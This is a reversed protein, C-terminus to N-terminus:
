KSAGTRSKVMEAKERMGRWRAYRDAKAPDPDEEGKLWFRYWDVTGQQSLLREKPKTPVHDGDPFYIYEVPREHRRLLAYTDWWGPLTRGYMEIKLPTKVRDLHLLPNRETWLRRGDEGWLPAGVLRELNLMGPYGANFYMAYHLVSINDADSVSAAALDLDSFTIAHQVYYGTNSWGHMGVRAPDVLGMEDLKEIASRYVQMQGVLGEWTGKSTVDPVQLVAIGAAALARAAFGSPSNSPGDMLFINEDFGHTQIVLPYRIGRQYQLPKILGGSVTRGESTTWSLVEAHGLDIDRMQPNLDTIIRSRGTSLSTARVEPPSNLDQAIELRLGTRQAARSPADTVESWSGGSKRYLKQVASFDITSDERRQWWALVLDGGNMWSDSLSGSLANQGIGPTELDIIRQFEGSRVDVEVVSPRAKRRALEAERARALPLFTNVLVVHNNDTWHAGVRAGGFYLGAPAHLIPKMGGTAVDIVVFQLFVERHESTFSAYDSHAGVAKFYPNAAVPEYENWWHDPSSPLHILAVARRGDPSLAMPWPQSRIDYPQMVVPRGPEGQEGVFFAIKEYFWEGQNRLLLEWALEDRVIVGNRDEPSWEAPELAAYVVSRTRANLDFGRVPTPHSTVQHLGGTEADVLYVQSNDGPNEGLFAITRSDELWRASEIGPRNSTSRFRAVVTGEPRRGDHDLFDRVEAVRFVMLGYENYNGAVNGTRTVIFFRAGDPSIKLEISNMFPLFANPDVLVTMEISDIVDVPRQQSAAAPGVTAILSLLPVIRAIKGTIWRADALYAM